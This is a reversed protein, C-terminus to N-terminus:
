DKITQLVQILTEAVAPAVDVTKVRGGSSEEYASSDVGRPRTNGFWLNRFPAEDRFPFLTIMWALSCVPHTAVLSVSEANSRKLRAARTVATKASSIEDERMIVHVGPLKSLDCSIPVRDGYVSKIADLFGKEDGDEVADGTRRKPTALVRVSLKEALEVARGVSGFDPSYIAANERGLTQVLPRIKDVFLSTPDSIFLEIEFEECFRRTNEVNHPECVILRDVGWHRLERIFWRLRTIEENKDYHDQRRYRLFSMVVTVSRAYYQHRCAVVIDRLQLELKDTTPCAFVIVHKGEIAAYEELTFATEGDQWKRHWVHSFKLSLGTAQNVLSLANEDFGHNATTGYVVFRDAALMAVEKSLLNGRHDFLSRNVLM